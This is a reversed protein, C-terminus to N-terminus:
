TPRSSVETGALNGLPLEITVTTGRGTGPSDVTITGGHAAVIARSITLGVGSGQEDDRAHARYFREFLHPLHARDIGEGTDAVTLTLETGAASASVTVIGGAPTHRLANNLVNTLVQELRASDAVVTARSDARLRLTVDKAAFAPQAIQVVRRTLEDIPVHRREIRLRNEDAASIARLDDALRTLRRVQSRLLDITQADAQEVGDEIAELYGDVTALPTRLEHALDTLLRRRTAETNQLKAAMDNVAAILIDLERSTRRQPLRTAYNGAAIDATLSTIEGIRASATRSILLSAAVTLTLALLSALLVQLLNAIHFAQEVRDLVGAPLEGKHEIHDRFLPPGAVTAVAWTVALATVILVLNGLVLRTRLTPAPRTV